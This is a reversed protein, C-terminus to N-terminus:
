SRAAAALVTPAAAPVPLLDQQAVDHRYVDPGFRVTGDADVWTTFYAITVPVRQELNVWRERGSRMASAIEEETWETGRLVFRALEEPKELRVCGHSFARRSRSFLNDAPTDHLYVHFPNPFLFKVLGLSNRPGPRQRVAIQGSESRFMEMNNRALYGPNRRVAPLIETELINPPVNWHPSFVVHEMQEGFVPTPNDGTGTVVRMTLVERGEEYGHLQFTPINVLISRAGPTWGQWRWRELNLEIQRVRDEVPVNLAALADKDVIGDPVLGHRREFAKMADVLPQDYVDGMGVGSFDGSAQLRERLLPVHPSKKGPKLTLKAPLAPWGGQSAIRRHRVLAESLATYQPHVPRLGDLASLPAGSRAAQDLVAAPDMTRLNARWLQTSGRPDVTGSAVDDAYLLFAYTLAVDLKAYREDAAEGALAAPIVHPAQGVLRRPDYREIPLGEDNAGSLARVIAQGGPTLVDEAIWAPQYGRNWYFTQVAKWLEAEREDSVFAPSGQAALFDRLPAVRTDTQTPPAADVGDDKGLWVASVLVAALVAARKFPAM